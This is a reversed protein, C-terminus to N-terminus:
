PYGYSRTHRERSDRVANSRFYPPAWENWQHNGDISRVADVLINFNSNQSYMEPGYRTGGKVGHDRILRNLQSADLLALKALVVANYAANFREPDFYGSSTIHM